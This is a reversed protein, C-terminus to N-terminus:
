QQDKQKENKKEQRFAKKEDDNLAEYKKKEDETLKSVFKEERKKEIFIKKENDNLAEYTKKEEDSLRSIIKEERKKLMFEKREDASYEKCSTCGRNSTNEENALAIDSISFSMAGVLAIALFKNM